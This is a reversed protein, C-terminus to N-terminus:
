YAATSVLSSSWGNVPLGNHLTQSIHAQCEARDLGKALPTRVDSMQAFFAQAGM